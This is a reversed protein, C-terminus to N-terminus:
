SNPLKNQGAVSKKGHLASTNENAAKYVGVKWSNRARREKKRHQNKGYLGSETKKRKVVARIKPPPVTLSKEEL